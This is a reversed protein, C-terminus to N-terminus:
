RTDSLLRTEESSNKRPSNLNAVNKWVNTKPDYAEVTKFITSGDTGGIAYLIGDVVGVGVGSRCCSMYSVYTWTNTGPHYCEVSDLHTVTPDGNYGGVQM